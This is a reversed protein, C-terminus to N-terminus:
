HALSPPLTEDVREFLPVDRYAAGNTGAPMDRSSTRTSRRPGEWNEPREIIGGRHYIGDDWFATFLRVAQRARQWEGSVHDVESPPRPPRRQEISRQNNYLSNHRYTHIASKM